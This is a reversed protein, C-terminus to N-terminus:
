MAPDTTSPDGTEVHGALRRLYHGDLDSTV